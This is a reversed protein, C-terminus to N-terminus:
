NQTNTSNALIAITVISTIISSLQQFRDPKKAILEDQRKQSVMIQSGPLIKKSSNRKVKSGEGYPTIYVINKKDAYATLGGALEIYNKITRDSSWEIIGPNHIEGDIEVTGNFDKVYITDNPSLILNGNASGFKSTDRIITVESYDGSGNFGGSRKIISELTEMNTALPYLGPSSVGGKVVVTNLKEYKNYLQISIYDNPM